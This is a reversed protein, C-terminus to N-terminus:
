VKFGFDNLPCKKALNKYSENNDWVHQNKAESFRASLFLQVRSWVHLETHIKTDFSIGITQLRNANIWHRHDEPITFLKVTNNNFEITLNLSAWIESNFSSNSTDNNHDTWNSRVVAGVILQQYLTNM